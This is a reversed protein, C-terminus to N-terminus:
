EVNAQQSVIAEAKWAKAVTQLEDLQRLLRKAFPQAVAWDPSMYIGRSEMVVAYVLGNIRELHITGSAALDLAASDRSASHLAQLGFLVGLIPLFGLFGIIAYLRAKISFAHERSTRM